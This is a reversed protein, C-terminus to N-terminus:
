GHPEQGIFPNVLEAAREIGTPVQDIDVERRFALGRWDSVIAIRLDEPEVPLWRMPWYPFRRPGGSSRGLEVMDMHSRSNIIRAYALRVGEEPGELYQLFRNGDTLLVGTVGAILNHAAADKALDDVQHLALGAVARSCYAIAHLSM